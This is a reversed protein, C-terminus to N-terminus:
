YLHVTCYESHTASQVSEALSVASPTKPPSTTHESSRDTSGSAQLQAASGNASASGLSRTDESDLRGLLRNASGRGSESGTESMATSLAEQAAEQVADLAAEGSGEVM